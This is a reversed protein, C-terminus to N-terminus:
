NRIDRRRDIKVLLGENGRLDIRDRVEEEDRDAFSSLLVRGPLKEGPFSAGIPVAGMNLAILIREDGLERYFLLLDGAAKLSL